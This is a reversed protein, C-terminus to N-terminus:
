QHMCYMLKSADSRTKYNLAAARVNEIVYLPMVTSMETSERRVNLGYTETYDM